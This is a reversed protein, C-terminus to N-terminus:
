SHAALRRCRTRRPKAGFGPQKALFGDPGTSVYPAVPEGTVGSYTSGNPILSIGQEGNAVFRVDFTSGSAIQEPFDKAANTSWRDCAVSDDCQFLFDGNGLEGAKYAPSGSSPNSSCGALMGVSALVTALSLCRSWTPPLEM